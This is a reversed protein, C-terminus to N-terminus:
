VSPNLRRRYTRGQPPEYDPDDGTHESSGTEVAADDDDDDPTETRKRKAIGVDLIDRYGAHDNGQGDQLVWRIAQLIEQHPIVIDRDKDSLKDAAFSESAFESLRLILDAQSQQGSPTGSLTQQNSDLDGSDTAYHFEIAATESTHFELQGTPGTASVEPRWVHLTAIKQSADVGYPLKLGVVARINGDSDYIHDKAKRRLDKLTQSFAMELIVGPFAMEDHKFSEDPQTIKRAGSIEYTIDASGVLHVNRAFESAKDDGAAVDKLQDYILYGLRRALSDHPSSPMRLTLRQRVPDYDYRLKDEIYGILDQDQKAIQLLHNFQAPSLSFSHNPSTSLEELIGRKITKICAIASHIQAASKENSGPPTLPSSNRSVPPTIESPPPIM